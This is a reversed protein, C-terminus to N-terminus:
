HPAPTTSTDGGDFISIAAQKIWDHRLRGMRAIANHISFRGKSAPPLPQLLSSTASAGRPPDSGKENKEGARSRLPHPIWSPSLQWCCFLFLLVSSVCRPMASKSMSGGQRGCRTTTQNRRAQSRPLRRASLQTPPAMKGHRAVRPYM